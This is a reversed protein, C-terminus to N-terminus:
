IDRRQERVADVASITPDNWAAGIQRALGETKVFWADIASQEASTLTRPQGLGQALLIRLTETDIVRAGQSPRLADVLRQQEDPPLLQAERLITEYDTTAM